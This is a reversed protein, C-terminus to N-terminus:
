EVTQDKLYSKFHDNNTVYIYYGRTGYLYIKDYPEKSNVSSGDEKIWKIMDELINRDDTTLSEEQSSSEMSLVQIKEKALGELTRENNKRMLYDLVTQNTISPADLIMLQHNKYIVISLVEGQTSTNSTNTDLSEVLESLIPQLQRYTYNKELFNATQIDSEKLTTSNKAQDTAQLEKLLAQREEERLTLYGYYTNGDKLVITYHMSMDNPTTTKNQFAYQLIKEIAQEDTFLIQDLRYGSTVNMDYANLSSFRIGEIDEITLTEKIYDFNPMKKSNIYAEMGYSYLFALFLTILFYGLSIKIKQIRKQTILDYIFFYALYVLIIILADRFSPQMLFLLIGLPFLTLCKVFTHIHFSTFSTECQEMKRKQFTFFGLFIMVLSWLFTKLLMTTDYTLTTGSVFTIMAQTSVMGHYEQGKNLTTYYYNEKAQEACNEIGTQEVCRDYAIQECTAGSCDYEVLRTPGNLVQQHFILFFSILFLLLVTVIIQTMTNGVLSMAVNTTTFVSIYGLGYVLLYDLVMSSNLVINQNFCSFLFLFLINMLFMIIILIIGALTNSIFIQKRSLPMGIIFDVKKRKYLFSFLVLSFLIPIVFMGLTILGSSGFLDVVGMNTTALQILSTILPFLFLILALISRSKKLNQFVYKLHLCTKSNM